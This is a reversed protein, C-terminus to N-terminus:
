EAKMERTKYTQDAGSASGAKMNRTKTKKRAERATNFEAATKLDAATLNTTIQLTGEKQAQKAQKADMMSYSLGDWVQVTGTLHANSVPM